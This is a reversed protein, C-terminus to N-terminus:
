ERHCWYIIERKEVVERAGERESESVSIQTDWSDVCWKLMLLMGFTMLSLVGSVVFASKLGERVQGAEVLWGFPVTTAHM